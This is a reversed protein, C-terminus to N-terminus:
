YFSNSNFTSSSLSRYSESMSLQTETSIIKYFPCGPSDTPKLTVLFIQAKFKNGAAREQSGKRYIPSPVCAVSLVLHWFRIWHIHNGWKCWICIHQFGLTLYALNSYTIITYTEERVFSGLKDMEVNPKQCKTKGWHM